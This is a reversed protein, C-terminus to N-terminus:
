RGGSLLYWVCAGLLGLLPYEMGRLPTDVVSKKEDARREKTPAVSRVEDSARARARRRSASESDWTPRGTDYGEDIRPGMRFYEILVGTAYCCGAIWFGALAMFKLTRGFRRDRSRKRRSVNRTDRASSATHDDKGDVSSSGATSVIRAKGPSELPSAVGQRNLIAIIEPITYRQAPLQGSFVPEEKRVRRGSPSPQRPSISYSSPRASAPFAEATKKSSIAGFDQISRAPKEAPAFRGFPPSPTNHNVFGTPSAFNGTPPNLHDSPQTTGDIPNVTSTTGSRQPSTNFGVPYESSAASDNSAMAGQRHAIDITGYAREYVDCLDKVLEQDNKKMGEEAAAAHLAKKKYWKGNEAYDVVKPSVDGEGAVMEVSNRSICPPKPSRSAPRHPQQSADDLATHDRWRTEFANMAAKLAEVENQLKIEAPTLSRERPIKKAFKRQIRARHASLESPTMSRLPKEKWLAVCSARSQEPIGRWLNSVQSSPSSDSALRSAPAKSTARAGISSTSTGSHQRGSKFNRWAEAKRRFEGRRTQLQAENVKEIMNDLRNNKRADNQNAQKWSQEMARKAWPVDLQKKKADVRKEIARVRNASTSQEIIGGTNRRIIKAKAIHRELSSVLRTNNTSQRDVAQTGLQEDPKVNASAWGAKQADEEISAASSAQKKAQNLEAERAKTREMSELDEVTTSEAIQEKPDESPSNYKNEMYSADGILRKMPTQQDKASRHVLSPYEQNESQKEPSSKAEAHEERGTSSAYEDRPIKTTNDNGESPGFQASSEARTSESQQRPVMRNSIPDYVLDGSQEFHKGRSDIGSTRWSLSARFNENGLSTKSPEDSPAFAHTGNSTRASGAESQSLSETRGNSFRAARNRAINEMSSKNLSDFQWSVDRWVKSLRRNSWGFLAEYPDKEVAKRLEEMQEWHRQWVKERESLEYPVNKEEQCAPCHKDRVNNKSDGEDKAWSCGPKHWSYRSRVSRNVSLPRACVITAPPLQSVHQPPANKSLRSAHPIASSLSSYCRFTSQTAQCAPLAFKGQPLSM